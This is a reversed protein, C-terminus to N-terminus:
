QAPQQQATAANRVLRALLQEPLPCSGHRPSPYLRNSEVRSFTRPAAIAQQETRTWRHFRRSVADLEAPDDVIEIPALGLAATTAEALQGLTPADSNTLHFVRDHSQPGAADIGICDEVVSDVPVVAVGASPDGVLRLPRSELVGGSMENLSAIKGAWDVFGAGGAAKGTGSHGVIVGPRLIRFPVGARRCHDVVAMEGYHKSQEYRSRFGRPRELSESVVGNKRGAVLASSLYNFVRTELPLVLELANEVGTVNTLVLARPDGGDDERAGACHWVTLPGANAVVARDTPSLGVGPQTVDGRMATVRRLLGDVESNAVGAADAASRLSETVRRRARLADPARVVCLAQDDKHIRLLELTLASGLLGTVGTVWHTAGENRLM